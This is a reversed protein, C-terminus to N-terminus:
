EAHRKGLFLVYERKFWQNELESLLYERGGKRKTDERRGSLLQIMRKKDGGM